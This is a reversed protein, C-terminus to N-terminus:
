AHCSSTIAASRTIGGRPRHLAAGVVRITEILRRPISAPRSSTAPATGFMVEQETILVPATLCGRNSWPQNLM